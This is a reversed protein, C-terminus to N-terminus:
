KGWPKDHNKHIALEEELNKIRCTLRQQMEKHENTEILAKNETNRLQQLEANKQLLENKLYIIEQKYSELDSPQESTLSDVTGHELKARTAEQRYLYRNNPLVFM